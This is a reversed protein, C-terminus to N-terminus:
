TRSSRAAPRLALVLRRHNREPARGLPARQVPDHLAPQHGRRLAPPLVGRLEAAAPRAAAFHAKLFGHLCEYAVAPPLGFTNAQFPYRTYTGNSWIMSRRQIEISDDGIWDLVEARLADSKLHLLHGTRDFRFGNDEITVAHGGPQALKEFIRYGVGRRELEIAASMGTFGRGFDRRAHAYSQCVLEHCFVACVIVM